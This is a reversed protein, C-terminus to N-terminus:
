LDPLPKKIIPPSYRTLQIENRTRIESMFKLNREYIKFGSMFNFNREYIQFEARLNQNGSTFRLNREYIKIEARLDSIGSM